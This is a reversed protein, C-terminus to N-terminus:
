HCKDFCSRNGNPARLFLECLNINEEILKFQENLQHINWNKVQNSSTIKRFPFQYIPVYGKKNITPGGWSNISHKAWNMLNWPKGNGDSSPNNSNILDLVVRSHPIKNIEDVLNFINSWLNDSKEENMEWSFIYPEPITMSLQEEIKSYFGPELIEFEKLTSYATRFAPWYINNGYKPCHTMPLLEVNGKRPYISPPLGNKANIRYDFKPYRKSPMDPRDLGIAILINPIILSRNTNIAIMTLTKIENLLKEPSSHLMLPKILTKKSPNYYKEGWFANSTKLVHLKSTKEYCTAHVAIASGLEEQAAVGGLEFRVGNVSNDEVKHLLLTPKYIVERPYTQPLFGPYFYSFNYDYKWRGYSLSGQLVSQDKAVVKKNKEPMNEYKEWARHFLLASIKTGKVLFLGFNARPFTTWTMGQNKDMGWGIDMQTRVQINDYELFGEFLILPDKLFGVDLDLLMINVGKDLALATHRLKIAAVQEFIHANQNPYVYDFCPFDAEKCKKICNPDSLCVM